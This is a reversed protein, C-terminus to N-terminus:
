NKLAEHIESALEEKTGRMGQLPGATVAYDANKFRGKYSIKGDNHIESSKSIGLFGEAWDSGTLCIIKNPRLEEIEAHLLDKCLDLQDECLATSPNGGDKPAIRYLNSWVIHCSWETDWDKENMELFKTAVFRIVQWFPSARYNYGNVGMPIWADLCSDESEHTRENHKENWGNAAKGIFMLKTSTNKYKHGKQTKFFCTKEFDDRVERLKDEFFKIDENM